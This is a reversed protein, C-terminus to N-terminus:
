LCPVCSGIASPISRPLIKAPSLLQVTGTSSASKNRASPARLLFGNQCKATARNIPSRIAARLRDSRFQCRCFPVAHKSASRCHTSPLPTSRQEKGSGNPWGQQAAPKAAAQSHWCHGGSSGGTAQLHRAPRSSHTLLGIGKPGAVTACSA